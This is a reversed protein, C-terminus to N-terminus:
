SRYHLDCRIATGGAIKKAEDEVRKHEKPNHIIGRLVIQRGDYLVDL